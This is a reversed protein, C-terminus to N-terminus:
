ISFTGTAGEAWILDFSNDPFPPDAMDAQVVTIRNVLGDRAAITKLENLFPQHIDVATVICEISNALVLSATGSGCGFDIIRPNPPLDDLMSLAKLTSEKSGPGKRFVGEFFSFMLAMQPDPGDTM